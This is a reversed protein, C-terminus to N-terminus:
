SFPLEEDIGDPINMFGNEDYEPQPSSGGERKSEAFPVVNSNNWLSKGSTSSIRLLAIGRRTVLFNFFIVMFVPVFTVAVIPIDLPVM